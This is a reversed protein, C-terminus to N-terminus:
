EPLNNFNSFEISPQYTIYWTEFFYYMAPLNNIGPGSGLWNGLDFLLLQGVNISVM